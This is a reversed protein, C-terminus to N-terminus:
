EQDSGGPNGQALQSWSPVTNENIAHMYGMGM